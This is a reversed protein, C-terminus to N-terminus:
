AAQPLAIVGDGSMAVARAAIDRRAARVDQLKPAPGTDLDTEIMRRMRQGIASLVAERLDGSTDALAVLLREAPFEGLLAARAAADLRAVDEFRFVRASLSAMQQPSLAEALQRTVAEGLAPDLENVIGALLGPMEDGAPAGDAFAAEILDLVLDEAAPGAEVHPLAAVVAGRVEEPLRALLAAALAPPLRAVVLAAVPESEEELWDALGEEPLDAVARWRLARADSGDDPAADPTAPEPEFNPESKLDSRDLLAAFTASPGVVGAGHEYSREFRAVIEDLERASVNPMREGGARGVRRLLAVEDAEFHALLRSARDRGVAVLVTAVERWRPPLAGAEAM